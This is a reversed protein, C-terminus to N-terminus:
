RGNRCHQAAGKERRGFPSPRKMFPNMQVYGYVPLGISSRIREKHGRAEASHNVQSAM